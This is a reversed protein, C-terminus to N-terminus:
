EMKIGAETCMSVVEEMAVEPGESTIGCLAAAHQLVDEQPALGTAVADVTEQFSQVQAETPKGEKKVRPNRPPPNKKKKTAVKKSPPELSPQPILLEPPEVAVGPPNFQPRKSVDEPAPTPPICPDAAPAYKYLKLPPLTRCKKLIGKSVAVDAPTVSEDCVTDEWESDTSSDVDRIAETTKKSLEQQVLLPVVLPNSMHVKNPVGEGFSYKPLTMLADIDVFFTLHGIRTFVGAVTQGLGSKITSYVVQSHSKSPGRSSKFSSKSGAKDWLYQGIFTGENHEQTSAM